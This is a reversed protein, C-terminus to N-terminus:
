RALLLNLAISYISIVGSKDSWEAREFAISITIHLVIISDAIVNISFQVM